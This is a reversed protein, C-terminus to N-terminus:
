ILLLICIILAIVAIGTPALMFLCMLFMIIIVSDLM